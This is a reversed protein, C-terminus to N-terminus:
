RCIELPFTAAHARGHVGTGHKFRWPLSPTQPELGDSPKFRRCFPLNMLDTVVLDPPSETAQELAVAGNVAEVVEHGATEM